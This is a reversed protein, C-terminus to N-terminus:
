HFRKFPNTEKDYHASARDSNELFHSKRSVFEKKISVKTSNSILNCVSYKKTHPEVSEIIIDGTKTTFVPIQLEYLLNRIEEKPHEFNNDFSSSCLTVRPNIRKLLNKTTFGNNAGHHALIMIDTENNLTKRIKFYSAIEASELDGLSLVNFSGTRFFKVTSNNNLCKNDIKKPWYLINKYGWSTSKDLSDIYPPDVKIVKKQQQRTKYAQIIKLCGKGTDSHPEYGPYEIKAPTWTKLIEEIDAQACHDSDWSTIHLCSITTIGCAKMEEKVRPRNVDTLRAEILTFHSGDYYSFSSGASGLQYARFRTIKKQLLNEM